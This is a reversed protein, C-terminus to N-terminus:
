APSRGVDGRALGPRVGTFVGYCALGGALVDHQRLCAVAHRAQSEPALGVSHLCRIVAGVTWGLRRIRRASPLVADTRDAFTVEAFGAEAMAAGFAEVTDLGPLAWGQCWERYARDENAGRPRRGLFGDCVLLRGGPRLLRFAEALFARTDDAHCVSECAFVRTFAGGALGARMFDAVAFSARAGVERREANRRGREAQVASLTIGTGRVHHQVCLHVTAGGVGCGAELVVDDPGVALRRAIERHQNLLADSLTRTSGDWFGYGMSLTRRDSWFVDYLAQNEDYYRRVAARVAAPDTPMSQAM